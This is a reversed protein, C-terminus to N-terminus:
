GVSFFRFFRSVRCIPRAGFDISIHVVLVVQLCHLFSVQFMPTLSESRSQEPSTRWDAPVGRRRRRSWAAGAAVVSKVV